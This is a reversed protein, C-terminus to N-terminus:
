HRWTLEKWCTPPNLERGGGAPNASLVHFTVISGLLLSMKVAFGTSLVVFQLKLGEFPKLIQRWLKTMVDWPFFHLINFLFSVDGRQTFARHSCIISHAHLFWTHGVQRRTGCNSTAITPPAWSSLGRTTSAFTECQKATAKSQLLFDYM